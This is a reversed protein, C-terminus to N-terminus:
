SKIKENNNVGKLEKYKIILRELYFNAYAVHFEDEYIIKFNDKNDEDFFLKIINGDNLTIAIIQEEEPTYKYDIDNFPYVSDETYVAMDNFNIITYKKNINAKKM